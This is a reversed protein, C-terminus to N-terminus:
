DLSALAQGMAQCAKELTTHHLAYSLRLYPSCGFAVGPVLAVGARELFFTAVDSDTSLVKGKSSKGLLDGCSLYMYFAGAPRYDCSLGKMHEIHDLLFDRRTEFITAQKTLLSKPSQFATIAAIQSISCPNSTSQSQLTALHKILEAPGAGFGIRWGTMAYAKSVGNVILLRDKLFPAACGFSQFPVGDYLLHEYIEDSMVWVHPHQKLVHALGKMEELTYSAGTPNHPSNLIFWKTRSSIAQELQLPTIKFGEKHGCPVIVPQAGAFRVMDPYSAWYPAPVVVEDGPNLTAMLANFIVQKAGSGVSIEHPQYSLTNQQFLKDCIAQKLAPMGDVATYKTHGEQIAKIATKKVEDPTDFDPEGVSLNIIAHGQAKLQAAKASVALTPSPEIRGIAQSLNIM